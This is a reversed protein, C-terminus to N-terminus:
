GCTPGAADAAGPLVREWAAGLMELEAEGFHDLFLARVGALHTM